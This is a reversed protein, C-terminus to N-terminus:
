PRPWFMWLAAGGAVVAGFLVAARALMPGRALYAVIGLKFAQNSLSALLILRWGLDAELSGGAVLRSTSLTIADMDTLGSLVAVVDLGASGLHEKAAAVALLIGAYLAGFILATQLEAPNAQTLQESQKGRGLVLYAAVCIGIMWVFMVVLPPAMATFQQPAVVGIEILTRAFSVTSALIVVLAALGAAKPTSAAHRAYSVTTATSSILGGLLGALLTGARSGFLLYAVYGVLNLGVILVVMFWINRPNLVDFPGYTQDPLVPLIVLAILVFRMIAHFDRESIRPIFEHLPQKLHLLLAVAGATVVAVAAPGVPIYAGIGFMTLAAVETTVGPDHEGGAIKAVNSVVLLVVVALFGAGVIWGGFHPALLGCLTGTVTLLAFTRIGAVRSGSHERQLGVLLGLGLALALHRFAALLEPAPSEM